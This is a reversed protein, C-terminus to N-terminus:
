AARKAPARAARAPDQASPRHGRARARRLAGRAARRLRGAGRAAAGRAPARRAHLAQRGLLDRRRGRRLAPESRSRARAPQRLRRRRARARAPGARPRDAHRARRGAGAGAGRLSGGARRGGRRGARRARERARARGRDRRAATGAGRAGRAARARAGGAAPRRGLVLDAHVVFRLRRAGGRRRADLAKRAIRFGRLQEAGVGAAALARERLLAEPEDLGLELGLVRYSQTAESVSAAQKVRRGAGRGHLGGGEPRRQALERAARAPARERAAPARDACLLAVRWGPCRRRLVAGFRAYLDRLDGGGRLRVGYPPNCVIWGMGPPPEFDSITRQEFAIDSGVGAAEANARAAEIAGADRDSGRIPPASGLAAAEAEAAVRAALPPMSDRGTRAPSAVAGARLSGTEGAAGGRDPHDGLRLLSGRAAVRCGLRVRAAAGGGADRAAAGQRRGQALRAPAPARRFRRPERRLSRARAAGARATHIPNM